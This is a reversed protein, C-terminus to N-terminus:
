DELHNIVLKHGNKQWFSVVARRSDALPLSHSYFINWSWDGHFFTALGPPSRIRSRRIVLWVCMQSLWRPQSWLYSFWLQAEQMRCRMRHHQINRYVKMFIDRLTKLNCLPCSKKHHVSPCVSQCVMLFFIDGRGTSTLCLFKSHERSCNLVKIALSLLLESQM